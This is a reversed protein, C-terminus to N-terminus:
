HWTGGTSICCCTFSDAGGWVEVTAGVEPRVGALEPAYRRQADHNSQNKGQRSLVGSFESPDHRDFESAGPRRADADVRVKPRLPNSHLGSLGM